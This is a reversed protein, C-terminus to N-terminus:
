ARVTPATASTRYNARCQFEVIALPEDADGAHFTNTIFSFDNCTGSMTPDSLALEVDAIIKAADEDQQESEFIHWVSLNLTRAYVNTLGHWTYEENTCAVVVSPLQALAHASSKHRHVVPVRLFQYPSVGLGRLQTVVADLIADRPLAM